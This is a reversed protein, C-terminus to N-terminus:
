GLRMVDPGEVDGRAGGASASSSQQGYKEYIQMLRRQREQEEDSRRSSVRPEEDDPAQRRRRRELTAAYTDEQILQTEASGQERRVALGAEFGMPRRAYDKGSACVADGRVQERLERVLREESKGKWRSWDPSVGRRSRSRSRGPRRERPTSESDSSADGRLIVKGLHAVCQSSDELLVGLKLRSPVRGEMDLVVGRRWTGDRCVEVPTGKERFQKLIKRNAQSRKRYQPLPALKEELKRKVAVPLRPLPTGFYKEKILLSEVYEGVTGPLPGLLRGDLGFSMDDLVYEELASWLREPREAFRIYLLAVCRVCISHPHDLLLQLDDESPEMTFLRFVCCFFVSPSTPSSAQYVDISDAFSMVEEALGDVSNIKLLSKFYSSKLIQDKLM